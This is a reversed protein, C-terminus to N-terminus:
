STVRACLMPLQAQPALSSRPRQSPSNRIAAAEPIGKLCADLERLQRSRVPVPQQQEGARARAFQHGYRFYESM